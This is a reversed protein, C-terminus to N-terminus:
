PGFKRRSAPTYKRRVHEVGRNILAIAPPNNSLCYLEFFDSGNVILPIPESVYCFLKNLQKRAFLSIQEPTAVRGKTEVPTPDFLGGQVPRSQYFEEEWEDSGFIQALKRRKGEDVGRIDRALQQVVAKRPFLYWVDVRKTAALTELTRWDVSMGYPDLFVVGRQLGARPDASWPRSAFLTRLELNAEGTRVSIDQPFEAKLATLTEARGAHQETFWYHNFPPRIKLAKRASGDLIEEVKEIPQGEFIGGRQLEAHRDGTGAFADIYWTEFGQNKLANQYFDLYETLAKLKIETWVGGFRHAVRENSAM